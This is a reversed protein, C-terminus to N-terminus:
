YALARAGSEGLWQARLGWVREILDPTLVADPAGEAAIAGQDLVVVRDAHNMALALNHLVLVVGKGQGALERFRM